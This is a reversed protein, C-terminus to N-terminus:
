SISSEPDIRLLLLYIKMTTEGLRAKLVVCDGKKLPEGRFHLVQLRFSIKRKLRSCLNLIRLVKGGSGGYM